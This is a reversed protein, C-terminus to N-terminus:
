CDHQIDLKRFIPQYQLYLNINCLFHDHVNPHLLKPCVHSQLHSNHQPREKIEHITELQRFGM